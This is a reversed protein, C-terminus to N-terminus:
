PMFADFWPSMRHAGITSYRAFVIAVLVDFTWSARLAVSLVVELALIAVAIVAVIRKVHRSKVGYDGHVTVSLLEMSAVTTLAVRASFFLPAGEHKVFLSPLGDPVGWGGGSGSGGPVGIIDGSGAALLLSRLLYVFIISLMPRFTTGLVSVAVITVGIAESVCSSVGCLTAAWGTKLLWDRLGGLARHGADAFDGLKPPEAKLAAAPESSFLCALPDDFHFWAYIAGATLLLRLLVAPYRHRLGARNQHANPTDKIDIPVDLGLITATMGAHGASSLVGRIDIGEPFQTHSRSPSPRSFYFTSNHTRTHSLPLLTHHFARHSIDSYKITQENKM